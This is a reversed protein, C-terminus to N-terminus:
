HQRVSARSVKEEHFWIELTLPSGSSDGLWYSFNGRWEDSEFRRHPEGLRDLVEDPTPREDMLWDVVDSAMRERPLRDFRREKNDHWEAAVFDTNTAIRYAFPSLIAVVIILVCILIVIATTKLFGLVNKLTNNMFLDGGLDM